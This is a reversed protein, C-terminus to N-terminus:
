LWRRVEKSYDAYAKGFHAALHAEERAIVAYRIIIVLLPALTLIWSSRIGFGVGLYLLIMGVYIPNRSWGYIGSTVLTSAPRNGTVPTGARFFNAIGAGFIILGIATITGPILKHILGDDRVIEIPLPLLHDLMAGLALMAIVLIPPRVRFASISPNEHKASATM